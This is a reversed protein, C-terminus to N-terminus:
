SPRVPYNSVLQKIEDLCILAAQCIRKHNLTVSLPIDFKLILSEFKVFQFLSLICIKCLQIFSYM